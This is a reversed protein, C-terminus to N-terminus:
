ESDNSMLARFRLGEPTSRIVHMYKRAGKMGLPNSSNAATEFFQLGVEIFLEGSREISKPQQVMNRVQTHEFFGREMELFAQKGQVLSCGALLLQVDECCLKGYADANGNLIASVQGDRLSDLALIETESIDGLYQIDHEAQNDKM